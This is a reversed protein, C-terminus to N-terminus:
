PLRTLSPDVLRCGPDADAANDPDDGTPVPYPSLTPAVPEDGRVFALLGDAVAEALAQHANTSTLFARDAPHTIFGMEVLVAPVSLSTLVLFRAPLIGNQNGPVLLNLREQILGALRMSEKDGKRYFTLAGGLRDPGANAHLSVYIDVKFDKAIQVRAELDRRHRSGGPTGWPILAEDTTRTLRVAAGQAQLIDNLALGVALNLNKECLDGRHCGGDVGGHGPDIVIRVAQLVGSSVPSGPAVVTARTFGFLAATAMCAVLLMRSPIRIVAFVPRM